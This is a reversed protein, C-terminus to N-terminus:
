GGQTAEIIDINDQENILYNQWDDRSVVEHNIAIALSSKRGSLGVKTLLDDLSIGLELSYPKGNLTVDVM